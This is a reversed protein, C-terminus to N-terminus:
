CNLWFNIEEKKIENCRDLTVNLLALLKGDDHFEYLRLFEPTETPNLITKLNLSAPQLCVHLIM